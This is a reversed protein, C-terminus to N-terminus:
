KTTSPITELKRLYAPSLTNKSKAIPLLAPYFQVFTTDAAGHEAHCSYCGATVPIMKATTGGVSFGFFAWKGPFRAEDKVHMALGIELSQAIGKQNPNKSDMDEAQRQDVVFMTKDPWTGTQLFRRYADPNVLINNFKQQGGTQMKAPDSVAYYDSTLYVWERFHEPLKLQSDATYEPGESSSTHAVTESLAGLLAVALFLILPKTTAFM